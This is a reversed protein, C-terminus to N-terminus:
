RQIIKGKIGYRRRVREKQKRERPRKEEEQTTEPKKEVKLKRCDDREHEYKHCHDCLSPKWDYIVNQTLKVGKENQFKVEEPLAKGVKVELLLRAYSLGLKKKIQKDVM